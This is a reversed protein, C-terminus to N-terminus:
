VLISSLIKAFLFDLAGVFVGVILTIIVVTSTLKVVETRKPWSVKSLEERVEGVYSVLANM